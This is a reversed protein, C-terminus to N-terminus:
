LKGEENVQGYAESSDSGNACHAIQHNCGYKNNDKNNDSVTSFMTIYSIM